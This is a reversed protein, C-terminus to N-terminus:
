GEYVLIWLPIFHVNQEQTLGFAHVLKALFTNVNFNVLSMLNLYADAATVHVDILKDLLVRRQFDFFDFSCVDDM